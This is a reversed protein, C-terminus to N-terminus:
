SRSIENVKRMRKIHKLKTKRGLGNERKFTKWHRGAAKVAKDFDSEDTFFYTWSDDGDETTYSIELNMNFVGWFPPSFM